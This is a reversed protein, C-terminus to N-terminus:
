DIMDDEWRLELMMTRSSSHSSSEVMQEWECETWPMVLRRPSPAEVIPMLALMRLRDDAPREDVPRFSQPDDTHESDTQEVDTAEAEAALLWLLPLLLLLLLPWWRGMLGDGSDRLVGMINDRGGMDCRDGDTRRVALSIPSAPPPAPPHDGGEELLEEEPPSMCAGLRMSFLTLKLRVAPPSADLRLMLSRDVCVAEEDDQESSLWFSESLLASQSIELGRVFCM